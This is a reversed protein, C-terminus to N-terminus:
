LVTFRIAVITMIQQIKKKCVKCSRAIFMTLDIDTGFWFTDNLM